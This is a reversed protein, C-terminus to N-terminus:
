PLTKLYDILDAIDEDSMKWRPMDTALMSGDPDKGEEVALKFKQADFESELTSWRIDKADMTQMMGMSHVGGRGDPGHCSACALQGGMMMWGNSSPGGAYTINTGRDSTATFYIREGNSTFAGQGWSTGVLNTERNLLSCGDLFVSILVMIFYSIILPIRNM